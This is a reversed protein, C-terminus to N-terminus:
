RRAGAGAPAGGFYAAVVEPNAKAEELSGEMLVRGQAMVIVPDCLRAVLDMDHEIVFFTYGHERNLREINDLLKNLLTRNVGAGIEDLLVVKAEAMMTRGLELLKKQGGSLNGALENKVHALGIFEIVEEARARVREEERRVRGRRFWAAGLDEGMQDAPVMMLNELASMRSFEHPIQFTRLLGLAFRRHAPLHTVDRGDFLITGGDAPWAGTVMNFLTTKGAGNPGILGTVSGAEVALSCRDVALLGGFRKVADRVEIVAPM